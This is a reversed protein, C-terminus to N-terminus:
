DSDGAAALGEPDVITVTGRGSRVLGEAEWQSM